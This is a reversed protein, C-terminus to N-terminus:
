FSAFINFLLNGGQYEPGGITISSRNRLKIVTQFIQRNDRLIELRLTARNGNIDLLNIKMTRGEPLSVNGTRNRSLSLGAQGLLQYSSYRFVSKLERTLGRLRDDIQGGKGSALITKIELQISTDARAPLPNFLISFLILCFPLILPKWTKM